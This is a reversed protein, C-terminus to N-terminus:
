PRAGAAVKQTLVMVCKRSGGLACACVRANKKGCLCSSLYTGPAMGLGFAGAHTGVRLDHRRQAQGHCGRVWRTKGARGLTVARDPLHVVQRFWDGALDDRNTTTKAQM